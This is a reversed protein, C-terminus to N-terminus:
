YDRAYSVHRVTVRHEPPSNIGLHMHSDIHGTDFAVAQGGACIQDDFPCSINSTTWPILAKGPALCSTSKDTAPSSFDYCNTVFKEGARWNSSMYQGYYAEATYASQTAEQSLFAFQGCTSSALLVDSHPAVVKSSFIGAATFALFHLFGTVIFPLSRLIPHTSRKRWAWSVETFRLVATLDNADGRLLAQQQHFLGDAYCM